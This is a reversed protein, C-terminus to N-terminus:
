MKPLSYGWLPQRLCPSFTLYYTNKSVQVCKKDGLAGRPARPYSGPASKIIQVLNPIIKTTKKCRLCVCDSFFLTGLLPGFFMKRSYCVVDGEVVFCTPVRVCVCVCAAGICCYFGLATAPNPSARESSHHALSFIAIAM